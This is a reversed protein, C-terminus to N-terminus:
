VELTMRELERHITGIPVTPDIRFGDSEVFVHEFETPHSYRIAVFKASHGFSLLLAAAMTAVDDCDGSFWGQTLWNHLMFQPTRVIEYSEPQYVFHERLASDISTVPFLDSIGLELTLGLFEPDNAARRVLHAM